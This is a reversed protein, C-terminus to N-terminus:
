MVKTEPCSRMNGPGDGLDDNCGALTLGAALMSLFYLKKKM